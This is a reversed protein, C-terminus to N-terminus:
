FVEYLFATYGASVAYCFTVFFAAVLCIRYLGEAAAYKRFISRAKEYIPFIFLVGVVLAFVMYNDFEHLILIGDTTDWVLMKRWYLIATQLSDARFIVQGFLIAIITLLREAANQFISKEKEPLGKQKRQKRRKKLCADRVRELAIFAFFWLGWVVYKFGSGHWIGTLIWVVLLALIDCLLMPQHLKKLWKQGMLRRSCPMYVYNRFWEGLMIHWRRWYEAVSKSLYPHDFNKPLHFGMMTGLGIAMDSYGSFDYYLQLLYAFIGLWAPITGVGGINGFSYTVLTQLQDALMVKKVMGKIFLELGSNLSNLGVTRDQLQSEFDVYQVIPGQVVKPFFLVYLLFDTFKRQPQCKEWYVDLLYSLISFTYFSIGLPFEHLSLGDLIRLERGTLLFIGTMWTIFDILYKYFFLIVLNYVIGGILIWRRTKDLKVKEILLGIIYAVSTLLLVLILFKLGCWFYFIISALCLFANHYRDQIFYYLLICIPLFIILFTSSAFAM